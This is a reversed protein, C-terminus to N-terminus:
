KCCVYTVTERKAWGSFGQPVGNIMSQIYVVKYFKEVTYIYVFIKKNAPIYSTCPFYDLPQQKVCTSATTLANNIAQLPPLTVGSDDAKVSFVVGSFLYVFLFVFFLFKSVSKM